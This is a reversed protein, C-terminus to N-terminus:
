IEYESFAEEPERTRATIMKPIQVLNGSRTREGDILYSRIPADQDIDAAQHGPSYIPYASRREQGAKIRGEGPTRIGSRIETDYLSILIFGLGMVRDDHGGYTAKASQEDWARELDEMETVFWPSRIDLWGDRLFKVLWDMLMLRFWHATFVGFRSAQDKRIRKSDYRVWRHLNTWGRKRLEMQTVEGNGRCEIAMRCQEKFGQRMVSFHTGVAMCLPWLDFANIYDYAYEAVQADNEEISGKRMVEIVSRDQGLGDSTDVGLGYERGDEPTDWIYLKGLGDDASYGNWVLPQLTYRRVSTGWNATVEIPKQNTDWQTRSIRLRDPIDEGLITYVGAPNRAGAEARYSSTVETGFVSIATSQFAEQDDAPMEQLFKNLTNKDKHEFYEVEYFWMQARSMEWSRSLFRRLLDNSRVYARAREAHKITVQEPQWDLPIPRARLWDVTPYLDAGVFWPLFIPRLRSRGLHWNSKSYEWSKHWWNRRGKATSELVLMMWPSDHMARMLSADVLDEPNNFDSLESLHAVTPTTGRAIGTFQSGAQISIASDQGPFELLEGVIQRIRPQLYFPQEEYALEMMGAMKTSKDPDSSGVVGNVHSFFQARHLTRLETDTSVGLQRAKLIIEAIAIRKLEAEAKIMHIIRQAVNPSYRIITGETSRIKAYRTAWYLFDLQCLRRENKVWRLEDHKLQLPARSNVLNHRRILEAFYSRAKEVEKISHYTLDFGLAKSANVRDINANIIKPHYV